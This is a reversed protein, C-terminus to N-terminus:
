GPRGPTIVEQLRLLYFGPVATAADDMSIRGAQALHPPVYLGWEAGERMLLLAERWGPMLESMALTAPTGVTYTDVLTRGEGTTGLCDLVVRDTVRPRRGNGAALIQYRLGSSTTVIGAPDSQAGASVGPAAHGTAPNMKRFLDLERGLFYRNTDRGGVAPPAERPPAPRDAPTESVAPASPGPPAPRAAAPPTPVPAAPPESRAQQPAPRQGISALLIKMNGRMGALERTNAQMDRILFAGAVTALLLVGGAATV